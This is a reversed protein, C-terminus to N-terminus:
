ETLKHIKEGISELVSRVSKHNVSIFLVQKKFKQILKQFSFFIKLNNKMFSILM